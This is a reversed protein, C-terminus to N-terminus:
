NNNIIKKKFRNWNNISDIYDQKERLIDFNKDEEKLAETMRSRLMIMEEKNLWLITRGREFSIEYTKGIKKIIIDKSKPETGIEM